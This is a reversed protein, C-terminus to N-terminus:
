ELEKVAARLKEVSFEPSRCLHIVKRERELIRVATAPIEAAIEKPVSVIGHRDGHILDGPCIRLGGLEVPSGFEVVHVYAHSVAVNGAFFHFGTPEVAQLDRVAGNTVVGACGLALLINAHVEGAFAGLGPKGDIDEMVVVRPAPISLLHDWWDTRDFYTHGVPPPGSCRVRGTVAYGLMPPLHPFICRISADAFGENRLRLNFTEIANSVTCTDLGRIAELQQLEL